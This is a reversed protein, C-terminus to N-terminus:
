ATHLPRMKKCILPETGCQRPGGAFTLFFTDGTNATNGSGSASTKTCLNLNENGSKKGYTVYVYLLVRAVDGKVNDNVEVLGLCDNASYSTNYWLVTKGAYAKTSYSSIEERVNGFTWHNRTSNITTDTPRLHHLDSGAGSQYFNGHSKPWVHERNYSSSTKDSYFLTAENTGYESDTKQWYSTLSSYSVTTTLTSKMLTQLSNFLPSGAATVSSDTKVGKLQSMIDWSHNGTYYAVAQTSLSNCVEHRTGSNNTSGAASVGAPIVSLLMLLALIIAFVRKTM